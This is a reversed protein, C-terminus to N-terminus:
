FMINFCCYYHCQMMGMYLVRTLHLVPCANLTSLTRFFDNMTHILM